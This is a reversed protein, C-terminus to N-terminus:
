MLPKATCDQACVDVNSATPAALLEEKRLDCQVLRPIRDLHYRHPLSGDLDITVEPPGAPEIPVACSALGMGALVRTITLHWIGSLDNNTASLQSRGKGNRGASRGARQSPAITNTRASPSNAHAMTVIVLAPEFTGVLRGVVVMTSLPGYRKVRLGM